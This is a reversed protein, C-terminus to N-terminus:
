KSYHGEATIVFTNLGSLDDQILLEVAEGQELRIAVGHKDQGSYSLRASLGYIGAPAKNDYVKDFAIEGIQGNTKVNWYHINDLPAINKRMSIGNTLAVGGGFKGDDMVTTDTIHFIFRTIDIPFSFPNRIEAKYVAISGNKNLQPDYQTVETGVATFPHSVLTDLTLVDVAVSIIEAFFFEPEGNEEILIINDTAVLGHGPTMTITRTDVVADLALTLGAQVVQNMRLAFPRYFSNENSVKLSGDTTAQVAIVNGSPDVGQIRSVTGKLKPIILNSIVIENTTHFRLKIANFGINVPLQYTATQRITADTSMDVVTTFVGDSTATQIETNSFKGGNGNFAGIGIINAIITTAFHIVIEKPNNATSDTIVTHLNDFLDTVVGDFDFMNSQSVWLDNSCVIGDSVPFPNQTTVEQSIGDPNQTFFTKKTETPVNSNVTLDLNLGNSDKLEVPVNNLSTLELERGNADYLIFKRLLSM